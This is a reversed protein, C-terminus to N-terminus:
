NEFPKQGLDTDSQAIVLNNHIHIIRHIFIIALLLHHIHQGIAKYCFHWYVSDGNAPMLLRVVDHM